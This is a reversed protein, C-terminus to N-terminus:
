DSVNLTGPPMPVKTAPATAAASLKYLYVNRDISTVVIYLNRSPVYRFRGFTGNYNGAYPNGPSVANTAPHEYWTRTAVDLSYVTQGSGWAVLRKITPDYVLGPADYDEAQRSGTSNLSQRNTLTGINDINFILASGRGISVFKRNVPDIAGTHGLPGWPFVKSGHQRWAGTIPDFDGSSQPGLMVIRKSVPDYDSVMSPHILDYIEGPLNQQREWENRDFNFFWSTSTSTGERWTSGSGAFFKRSLPDFELHDYTHVSKPRGDPMTSSNESFGSLSSPDTLRAWRLTNLDFAYLENGAYDSHGGGWVLLRDRFTDYAGGSWAYIIGAPDGFGSPTPNPMVSRIASNPVEYWEGPALDPVTQQASVANPFVSFLIVLVFPVAQLLM